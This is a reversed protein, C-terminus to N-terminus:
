GLTEPVSTLQRPLLQILAILFLPPLIPSSLILVVSLLPLMVSRMRPALRGALGDGAHTGVWSRAGFDLKRTLEVGEGKEKFALSRGANVQSVCGGEGANALRRVGAEGVNFRWWKWRTM